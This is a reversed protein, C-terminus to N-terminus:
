HFDHGTQFALDGEDGTGGAALTTRVGHREGLRAGIDHRDVDHLVDVRHGVRERGGVVELVATASQWSPLPILCTM